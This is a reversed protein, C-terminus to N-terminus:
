MKFGYIQKEQPLKMHIMSNTFIQSYHVCYKKIKAMNFNGTVTKMDPSSMYNMAHVMVPCREAYNMLQNATKKVQNVPIRSLFPCRLATSM